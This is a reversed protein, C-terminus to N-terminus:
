WGGGGGGGGGGGSFGGGGGGSSSSSQPLAATVGSSLGTVLASNMAALSQRGSGHHFSGWHPTYDEAERPILKEFHETWPKELDLAIAYPLFREYREKTMAPPVAAGVEATNLQLQEATELYLRFGEIETRIDQGKRTPAPIVYMFWFNLGALALVALTHWVTWTTVFALSILVAIISLGLAMLVYLINWRFYDKGYRASLQKSFETYASTFTEDYKSGLMFVSRSAFLAKLFKQSEDPLDWEESASKVLTVSTKKDSHSDLRLVAKIGANMLTAILANHGSVARYWLHHVAAPSYGEPPAYRPFVPGKVPDRGVRNFQSNFLVFLGFGSVILIALAGNRQWWRSIQEERTPPDIVGKELSLSVTLGERIALEGLATFIHRNGQNSYSYDQASSGLPGTYADQAVVQSDSPLVITARASLIPFNWYSGTANWYLEDVQQQYRIQNAVRYEILYTHQGVPLFYDARGIRIRYAQGDTSFQFRESQGNRRVNLVDYDFPLRMMDDEFYRPLDRFIGRKIQNGEVTVTIEETVIIDGSTEVEITVNFSNIVEAAQASFTLFVSLFISLLAASPVSKGSM